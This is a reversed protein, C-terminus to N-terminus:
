KDNLYEDLKKFHKQLERWVSNFDPLEKLQMKLNNDWQTEFKEKKDIVTKLFDKPKLRKFVTKESFYDAIDLIDKKETYLFYWIDFLDRPITRQMLSRLKESLIENISYCEINYEEKLDSYDNIATLIQIECCIKESQCIDVKIDKKDIKGRLPGSYGIYFSFNGTTHMKEERLELDIRSGNNVFLIVENFKEKIIETNMEHGIFTFDLDESLRYDKKHFKRIATGGKFALQSKLYGNQSIGRLIWGIVYDKEIQTDRLGQGAALKQIEGPKIM